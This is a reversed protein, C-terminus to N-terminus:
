ESGHLTLITGAVLLLIAVFTRKVLKDEKWRLLGLGPQQVKLQEAFIFTVDARRTPTLPVFYMKPQFAAMRPNAHHSANTTRNHQPRGHLRRTFTNSRVSRSM